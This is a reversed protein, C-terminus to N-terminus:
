GRLRRRAAAGLVLLGLVLAGLPAMAPVPQAPPPPPPPGGVVVLSNVLSVPVTADAAVAIQVPAPPTNDPNWGYGAPPVPLPLNETVTCTNPAPINAVVVNAGAAVQVVANFAPQSCQVTVQFSGAPAPGGVVSKDVVVTGTSGALPILNNFLSVLVENGDPVAVVVPAPPTNEPNWAYGEPPAPLPQNETVTCTNPVPIDVVDFSAESAVQFTQSFAPSDCDVTVSFLLGAPNIDGTIYKLVKLQSSGQALVAPAAILHGLLALVALRAARAARGRPPYPM